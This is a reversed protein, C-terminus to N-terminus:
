ESKSHYFKTQILVLCHIFMIYYNSCVVRTKKAKPEDEKEECHKRKRKPILEMDHLKMHLDLRRKNPFKEDCNDCIFKSSEKACIKVPSSASDKPTHSRLQRKSEGTTTSVHDPTEDASSDIDNPDFKVDILTQISEREETADVLNSNDNPVDADSVTTDGLDKSDELPSHVEATTTVTATTSTPVDTKTTNTKIASSGVVYLPIDVPAIDQISSDKVSEPETDTVPEQTVPNSEEEVVAPVSTETQEDPATETGAEVHKKNRIVHLVTDGTDTEVVPPVISITHGTPTTLSTYFDQSTTDAAPIKDSPSQDAAHDLTENYQLLETTQETQSSSNHEHRFFLTDQVEPM